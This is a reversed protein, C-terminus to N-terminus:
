AARSRAGEAARHLAKSRGPLCCPEGCSLTHSRRATRGLAVSEATVLEQSCTCNPHAPPAIFAGDANGFLGELLVPPQAALRSCIPCPDLAVWRRYTAPGLTGTDRLVRWADLRGRERASTMETRAIVAARQRILRARYKEVAKNVAAPNAKGNAERLRRFRALAASDRENLGVHERLRRATDAVGRGQRIGDAIVQRMAEQASQSQQQVLLLGRADMFEAAREEMLTLQRPTLGGATSAPATTADKQQQQQRQQTRVNRAARKFSAVYVAFAAKEWGDSLRRVFAGWDADMAEQVLNTRPDARVLSDWREAQRQMTRCAATYARRLTASSSTARPNRRKRPAM